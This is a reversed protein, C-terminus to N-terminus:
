KRGRSIKGSLRGTGKRDAKVRRLFEQRIAKRDEADMEVSDGELRALLLDELRQRALRDQDQRILTRLYESHTSYRGSSVQADVVARLDEPLSINLTTM